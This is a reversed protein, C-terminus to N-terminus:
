RGGVGSLAKARAEAQEALRGCVLGCLEFVLPLAIAYIARNGEQRLRTLEEGLAANAEEFVAKAAASTEYFARGMGVTQAGQGPFVFALTTM